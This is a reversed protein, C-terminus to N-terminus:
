TRETMVSPLGKAPLVDTQPPADRLAHIRRLLEPVVDSM